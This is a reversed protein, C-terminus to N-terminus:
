IAIALRRTATVACVRRRREGDVNRGMLDHLRRLIACREAATKAAWSPFARKAAAIASETDSQGMDPLTAVVRGDAPNVVDVRGPGSSATVWRGDIYGGLAKLAFPQTTNMAPAASLRRRCAAATRSAAAPRPIPHLLHIRASRM